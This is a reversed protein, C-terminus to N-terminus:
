ESNFDEMNLNAFIYFFKLNKIQINKFDVFIQPDDARGSQETGEQSQLASPGAAQCLSTVIFLNTM